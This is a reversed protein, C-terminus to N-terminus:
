LLFFLVGGTELGRHYLLPRMCQNFFCLSFATIFTLASTTLLHLTTELIHILYRCFCFFLFIITNLRQIHYQWQQQFYQDKFYLKFIDHDWVLTYNNAQQTNCPKAPNKRGRERKKERERKKFVEHLFFYFLIFLDLTIPPQNSAM